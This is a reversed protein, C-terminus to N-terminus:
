SGFYHCILEFYRKFRRTNETKRDRVIASNDIQDIGGLQQKIPRLLM